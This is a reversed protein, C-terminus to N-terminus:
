QLRKKICIRTILGTLYIFAEVEDPNIKYRKDSAHRKYENAYKIFNIILSKWEQSFGLKTVLEEKNNDLVKNNNLIKRAVGEVCNYCDGIADNDRKGLHEKLAKEFDKKEEPFDNLWDLVDIILKKDLLKSGSPYFKGDKWFIGLDTESKELFDNINANLYVFEGAKDKTNYDSNLLIYKYISELILLYRRFNRQCIVRLNIESKIYKRRDGSSKYVYRKWDEGIEVSLWELYYPDWFKYSASYNDLITTDVRTMFKEESEKLSGELGFRKYFDKLM